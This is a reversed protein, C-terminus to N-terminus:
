VKNSNCPVPLLSRSRIGSPPSSPRENTLTQIPAPFVIWNNRHTLGIGKGVKQAVGTWVDRDSIELSAVFQRVVLNISRGFPQHTPM